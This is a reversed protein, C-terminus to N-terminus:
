ADTFFLRARGAFADGFVGGLDGGREARLIANALLRADPARM